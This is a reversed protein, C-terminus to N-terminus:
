VRWGPRNAEREAEHRDLGIDRLLRDDLQALARRQRSRELCRALIGLVAIGVRRSAAAPSLRFRAFNPSLDPSGSM